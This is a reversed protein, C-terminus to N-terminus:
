GGADFGDGADLIELVLPSRRTKHIFCQSEPAMENERKLSLM